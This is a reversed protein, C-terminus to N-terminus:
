EVVDWRVMMAHDEHILNHCHMLYKGTFDRFQLYVEVEGNPPLNYVDKRGREHPAPPLGNRKLIRGEEFHIHVPHDWGGGDNRLTWIEATGKKPTAVPTNVNFIKGNVTWVGNNRGFVFTRRQVVKTLDIPPLSRLKTSATLVRSLDAVTATGVKFKLVQNGNAITTPDGAKRTDTQLVTNVLFVEKGKFASFDVIIDAREAMGLSVKTQNMLPYELLNGDSAIRTFPKAVGGQVLSLDYFRTPGGNLLRLRYKRPQVNFYPKIKGNVVVMDGVAGEPSMQDYFQRGSADFRMDQFMLPVDYDGSPLRLAQPNSDNENGSDLDDFILYFGALGKIVNPATSDQTHDHYWLTGLAERPDGIADFDQFDPHNPDRSNDLGAYVNHYCHDKYYGPGSLTPGFKNPSWYDSTFGDSESATHLNHLHMSLEPTGFGVHDQPLQNYLRTIIPIGYRAYFTPGPYKGDYGWIPQEPYNPALTFRHPAEKAVLEYQDIGYGEGYLVDFRQIENRGCEGAANNAVQQVPPNLDAVPAKPQYVYAPISERWWYIPDIAPSPPYVPSPELADNAVAAISDKSAALAVAGAGLAFKFLNRRAENPLETDNSVEKGSVVSLETLDSMTIEKL